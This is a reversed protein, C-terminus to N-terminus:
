ITRATSCSEFSVGRCYLNRVPCSLEDWKGMVDLVKYDCSCFPAAWGGAVTGYRTL